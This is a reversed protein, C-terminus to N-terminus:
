ISSLAELEAETLYRWKGSPLAGLQLPGEAVRKLRTVRLGALECMRRVQRNRGEGLTFEFLATGGQARLLRVGVPALPRGDLTMPERLRNEVGARYGQTWVLYVKKKGGSPHMIKNALGGDNTLLLLGESNLDLRGAPYLRAPCDSVLELVTKRGKEDRCTTVYGRPKNLLVCVRKERRKLPVGDLEIRDGDPDAKQGLRAATGNVTVRGAAIMAEAERRSAAGSASLLKQLREQM